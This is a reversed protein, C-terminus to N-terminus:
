NAKYKIDAEYSNLLLLKKTLLSISQRDPIQKPQGNVVRIYTFCSQSHDRLNYIKYDFCFM